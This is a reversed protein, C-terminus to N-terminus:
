APAPGQHRIPDNKTARGDQISRCASWCNLTIGCRRHFLTVTPPGLTAGKTPGFVEEGLLPLRGFQSCIATKFLTRWAM